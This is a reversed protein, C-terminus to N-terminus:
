YKSLIPTILIPNNIDGYYRVSDDRSNHFPSCCNDIIDNFTYGLSTFNNIYDVQTAWAEPYSDGYVVFVDKHQEYVHKCAKNQLLGHPMAAHYRPENLTLCCVFPNENTCKEVFTEYFNDATPVFDDEIIFHYDFNSDDQLCQGIVDNWAGYSFGQNKREVVKVKVYNPLNNEIRELFGDPKEGNIVFTVQTINTNCDKLFSLHEDLLYFPSKSILENHKKSMRPGFYLAVIYNIAYEKM